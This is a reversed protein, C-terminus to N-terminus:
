RATHRYAVVYVTPHKTLWKWPPLRGAAPRTEETMSIPLWGHQHAEWVDDLAEPLTSYERVARRADMDEWTEPAQTEVEMATSMEM